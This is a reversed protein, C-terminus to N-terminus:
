KSGLLGARGLRNYEEHTLVEMVYVRGKKYRIHVTLRYGYPKINFVTFEEGLFSASPFDQRVEHPTKYHKAEMIRHWSRLPTEAEAHKEWFERLRKLSIVHM